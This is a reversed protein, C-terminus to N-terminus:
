DKIPLTKLGNIEQLSFVIVCMTGYQSHTGAAIGVAKNLHYMVSQRHGRSPVGDDVLLQIVVNRPTTQGYSVNECAWAYGNIYRKSRSLPDSGDSGSHGWIGKPGTDNVHDRAALCLCGALPLPPRPSITDMYSIAEEIISPGERLPYHLQQAYEKIYTAYKKPNTRALNIEQWVQYEFSSISEPEQKCSPLPLSSLNSNPYPQILGAEIRKPPLNLLSDIRARCSQGLIAFETRRNQARGEPTANSAVLQSDGFGKAFIREPRIGQKILADRVAEARRQSLKLNHQPDKTSNQSDTHGRLEIIISTDRQMLNLLQNIAKESEPRLVSKDADFFVNLLSVSGPYPTNDYYGTARINAFSSSIQQPPCLKVSITHTGFDSQELELLYYQEFRRYIDKFVLDFESRNYIHHYTGNTKRSIEELLNTGISYGFDIACIITNTERAFRIVDDKSVQSANYDGDTFVIVVRQQSPTSKTLERIGQAIGSFTATQGGYGELGKKALLNQILLKNDTTLPAEISVQHDYKILTVADNPQKVQTIFNYAAQQVANARGEGMSGSFDM